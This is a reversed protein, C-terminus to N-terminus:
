GTWMIHWGNYNDDKLLGKNVLWGVAIFIEMAGACFQIRELRNLIIKEEMTRGMPRTSSKFVLQNHDATVEAIKDYMDQATATSALALSLEEQIKSHINDLKFNDKDLHVCIGDSHDDRYYVALKELKRFPTGAARRQHRNM